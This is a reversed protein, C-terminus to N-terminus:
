SNHTYLLTRNRATFDTLFVPKYLMDGGRGGVAYIHHRRSMPTLQHYTSLTALRQNYISEAFLGDDPVRVSGRPDGDSCRM